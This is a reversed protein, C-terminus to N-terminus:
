ELDHRLKRNKIAKRDLRLNRPKLPTKNANTYESDAKVTELLDLPMKLVYVTQKRTHHHETSNDPLKRERTNKGAEFDLVGVKKLEKLVVQHSSFKGENLWAELVTKIVAVELYDQKRKISGSCSNGIFLQSDINFTAQQAIVKQQIYDIARTKLSRTPMNEKDFAIIFQKIADISLDLNFCEKVLEATFIIVAYKNALRDSFEDRMTLRELIEARTEDLADFWENKDFHNIIFKVFEPGAYGYNEMLGNKLADAHDSSDTWQVNGIELVRMQLGSNQKSKELLSHEGTSGYGGSWTMREKLESDSNLRNKEQGEAIQYIISTFDTDSVSSEDLMMPVGQSVSIIKILANFTANWNSLLGDANPKGFASVILRAATTKGTSSEGYIHTFLVEMPRYMGFLSNIVSSFGYVLAFELPARGVVQEEIIKVWKDLSGTPKIALKGIYTSQADEQSASINTSHYFTLRETSQKWGLSEHQYNTKTILKEQIHLYNSLERYNNNRVDAGKEALYLLNKDNLIARSTTVRHYKGRAYYIINYLVTGNELNHLVEDIWILGGVFFYEEKGEETEVLKYLSKKEIKYKGLKVAKQPLIKIEERTIQAYDYIM